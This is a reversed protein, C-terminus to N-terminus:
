AQRYKSLLKEAMEPYQHLNKLYTKSKMRKIHTEIKLAVSRSPCEISHFLVWDNSQHTFTGKYQGTQHQRLRIELDETQGIYYRDLSPSYLVYVYYVM